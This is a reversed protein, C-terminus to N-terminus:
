VTAAQRRTSYIPEIRVGASELRQAREHMAHEWADSSLLVADPRLRDMAEDLTVAPLGFAEGSPPPTDDIIGVLPLDTRDFVGARWQTHRGLGYIAIRQCGARVLEEVHPVLDDRCAREGIRVVKGSGVDGGLVETEAVGMHQVLVDGPVSADTSVSAFGAERLRSVAWAIEEVPDGQECSAWRLPEIPTVGATDPTRDIPSALVREFFVAYRETM